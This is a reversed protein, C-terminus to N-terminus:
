KPLFKYIKGKGTKGENSIYLNGKQDFCIGEPQEHIKKKLKILDKITGDRNLVLLVKGISSTIYIENTIPHIAIGSPGFIFEKKLKFQKKLTGNKKIADNTKLFVNISEHSIVYSPNKDIKMSDLSFSYIGKQSKFEKGKGEKGKASFLLSNTKPDFGLGEIDSKKYFSFKHKKVEQLKEGAILLEFLTGNSKVAFIRGNAAEIGEYDGEKNFPYEQIVKGDKAQVVYLIGEEDQVTYLYQGSSDIGLGSIEKLKLPMEFIVDPKNFSYPLSSPAAKVQESEEVKKPECGIIVLGLLLGIFISFKTM